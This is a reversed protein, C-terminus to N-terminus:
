GSPWLRPVRRALGGPDLGTLLGAPDSFEDQAAEIRESRSPGQRSGAPQNPRALSQMFEVQRRQMRANPDDPGLSQEMLARIQEQLPTAAAKGYEYDLGIYLHTMAMLTQPHDEGLLAANIAVARERLPLIASPRGIAESVAALKEILPLHALHHPGLLAEQDALAQTYLAHARAADGAKWAADGQTVLEHAAALAVQEAAQEETTRPPRTIQTELRAVLRELRQAAQEPPLHAGPQFEKKPDRKGAAVELATLCIHFPIATQMANADGAQSQAGLVTVLRRLAALAQPSRAGLSRLATILARAAYHFASELNDLHKEADSLNGLVSLIFASSPGFSREHIVLSRLLLDRAEGWLKHRTLLAALNNLALGNDPHDPGESVQFIALAQELASRSREYEAPDDMLIRGQRQYVRGIAPVAQGPYLRAAAVAEGIQVLAASKQGRVYNHIALMSLGDLTDPHDKGLWGRRLEYARQFHGVAEDLSGQNSIIEGLAYEAAASLPPDGSLAALATEVMARAESFRAQANSVRGLGLHCRAALVEAPQQLPSLQAMAARYLTEAAAYQAHTLAEDAQNLIQAAPPLFATM